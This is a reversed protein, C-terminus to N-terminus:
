SKHECADESLPCFKCLGSPRANWVGADVAAEIAGARGAWKSLITPLQARTYQAKIIDNAVVFLLAGKVTDVEPHHMMVMAAMLELQATDAYKSSKGTKYDAVRATKGSKNIALYDPIGRFWVDKDFFGCPSFDARIAMKEECRIDGGFAALPEVFPKYNAFTEPLPAGDKIFHEFASHVATGYLTATTDQSKFKKLIRV